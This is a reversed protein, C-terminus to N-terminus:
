QIEQKSSIIKSILGYEVAEEPSLLEPLEGGVLDTAAAPEGPAWSFCIVLIALMTGRPPLDWFSSPRTSMNWVGPLNGIENQHRRLRRM